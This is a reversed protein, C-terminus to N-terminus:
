GESQVNGKKRIQVGVPWDYFSGVGAVSLLLLVIIKTFDIERRMKEWSISNPEIKVQLCSFLIPFKKPLSLKFSNEM